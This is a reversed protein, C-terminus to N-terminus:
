DVRQSNVKIPIPAPLPASTWDRVKDKLFDYAKKWSPEKDLLRPDSEKVYISSAIGAFCYGLSFNNWAAMYSEPNHNKVGDFLELGAKGILGTGLILAPFRTTDM